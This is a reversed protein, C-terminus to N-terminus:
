NLTTKKNSLLEKERMKLVQQESLPYSAIPAQKLKEDLYCKNLNLFQIHKKEYDIRKSEYKSKFHEITYEADSYYINDYINFGYKKAELKRYAMLYTAFHIVDEREQVIKNIERKLIEIMTSLSYSKKSSIELYIYFLIIALFIVIYYKNLFSSKIAAFMIFFYLILYCISDIELFFKQQKIIKEKEIIENDFKEIKIQIERDIELM